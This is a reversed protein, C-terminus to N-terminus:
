RTSACAGTSSRRSSGAEPSSPSATAGAPITSARAGRRPGRPAGDARAAVADEAYTVAFSELPHRRYRKSREPKLVVPWGLAPARELAEAATEVVATRPTPIGLSEALAITARKDTATALARADPLAVACGDLAGDAATLPRDRRRHRARGRRRTARARGPRPRRHLPGTRRAAAPLPLARPRSAFPPRARIPRPRRRDRALRPARAVHHDRRREGEGCRHRARNSAAVGDRRGRARAAGTLRAEVPGNRSALHSGLAPADMVQCHSTISSGPSM